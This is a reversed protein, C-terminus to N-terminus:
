GDGNIFFFFIYKIFSMQKFSLWIIYYIIILKWGFVLNLYDFLEWIFGNWIFKINGIDGIVELIRREEERAGEIRFEERFDEEHIMIIGIITEVEAESDGRM